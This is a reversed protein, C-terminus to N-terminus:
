FPVRKVLALEPRPMNTLTSFTEQNQARFGNNRESGASLAAVMIVSVNRSSPETTERLRHDGRDRRLRQEVGLPIEGVLAPLADRRLGVDSRLDVSNAACTINASRLAGIGPTGSAGCTRSQIKTPMLPWNSM